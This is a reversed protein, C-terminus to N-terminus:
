RGTGRQQELLQILNALSAAMQGLTTEMRSVAAEVGEMAAPAPAGALSAADLLDRATEQMRRQEELLGRAQQRLAEFEAAPPAQAAPAAPPRAALTRALEEIGLTARTSAVSTEGAQRSLRWVGVTAILSLILLAALGSVAAVASAWEFAEQGTM